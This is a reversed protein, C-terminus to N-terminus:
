ESALKQILMDAIAPRDIGMAVRRMRRDDEALAAYFDRTNRRVRRKAQTPTEDLELRTREAQLVNERAQLTRHKASAAEGEPTSYLYTPHLARMEDAIADLEATVKALQKARPMAM